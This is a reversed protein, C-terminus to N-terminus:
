NQNKNNKKHEMRRRILKKAMDSLFYFSLVCLVMTITGVISDTPTLPQGTTRLPINTGGGAVALGRIMCEFCYLIFM